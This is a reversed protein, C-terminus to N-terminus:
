LKKVWKVVNDKNYYLHYGAYISPFFITLPVEIYKERQLAYCLGAGALINRTSGFIYHRVALNQITPLVPIM